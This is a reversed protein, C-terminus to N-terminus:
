ICYIGREELLGEVTLEATDFNSRQSNWFHVYVNPHAHSLYLRWLRVILQQPSGLHSLFSM